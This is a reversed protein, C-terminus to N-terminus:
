LLDVREASYDFWIPKFIAFSYSKGMDKLPVHYVYTGTFMKDKALTPGSPQSYPNLYTGDFEIKYTLVNVNLSDLNHNKTAITFTYVAYDDTKETSDLKYDYQIDAVETTEAIIVCAAIFVGVIVACAIVIKAARSMGTKVPEAPAPDPSVAAPGGSLSAGCNQCFKVGDEYPSGCGQCYKTM